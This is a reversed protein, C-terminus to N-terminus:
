SAQVYRRQFGDSCPVAEYSGPEPSPVEVVEIPGGSSMVAVAKM